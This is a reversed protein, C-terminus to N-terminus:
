LTRASRDEILIKVVCHKQLITKLIHGNEDFVLYIINM